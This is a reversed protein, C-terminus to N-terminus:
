KYSKLNKKRNRLQYKFTPKNVPNTIPYQSKSTSEQTVTIPPFEEGDFLDYSPALKELRKFQIELKHVRHILNAYHRDTTIFFQDQRKLDAEIQGISNSHGTIHQSLTDLKSSNSNSITKLNGLDNIITSTLVVFDDDEDQTQTIKEQNPQLYEHKFRKFFWM